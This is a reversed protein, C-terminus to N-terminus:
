YNNSFNNFGYDIGLEFLSDVNQILRYCIFEDSEYYVSMNGPHLRMFEEAWYYMRSMVIWRNRGQYPGLGGGGPIQERAGAESVSQGLDEYYVAYDVPIKEVFFYTYKTPITVGAHRGINEVKRLLDITEYHYGYDEGMRLEDNASCITWTWNDHGYIINSLCTVAGNTEISNCNYPTRKLDYKVTLTVAACILLLSVTNGIAPIKFWRFLLTIVADIAYCWLIPLVYCFYISCRNADMIAPLGLWGSALVINMLFMFISVSILQAAYDSEKLAFFLLSVAILGAMCYYISDTVIPNKDKSIGSDIGSQLRMFTTRYNKISWIVNEVIGPKRVPQLQESSLGDAGDILSNDGVLAGDIIEGEGIDVTTDAAADTDTVANNQIDEVSVPLNSTSDTDSDGNIISMGWRLSGQLPTGTAFAAAMPFVAIVVSIFCTIVVNWFYKKRLFRFFFGIAMALCFLGAIMTGYFHVALTLSFSMAFGILCWKSPTLDSFWAIIKRFRKLKVCYLEDTRTELEAETLASKASNGGNLKDAQLEKKKFRFFAFGFYIAPLIFIMGFEQPLSSYYRSYTNAPFIDLAAYAAVGLYALYRSKLCAKLFLLLAWHIVLTQIFCFVRLMVYTELGFVAHLFYIICHFGFPYVGDVFLRDRSMYNIWFNHVPIDSACYGFHLILNEGYMHMLLLTLALFLVADIPNRKIVNLCKKLVRAIFRGIKLLISVVLSRVGLERKILRLFKDWCSRIFNRGSFGYIRSVAFYAPVAICLILTFWNSIHLLQLILVENIIYFNGFVIAILLKECLRFSKLLPNFIVLPLVCTMTMYIVFIVTTQLITLFAMSM